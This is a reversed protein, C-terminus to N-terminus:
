RAVLDQYEPHEALFDAVYWCQPIVRHGGARAGDLAGQVLVAGFGRGRHEPAIVTHPFVLVTGQLYYEAVGVLEGDVTLEYRSAEANDRVETRM